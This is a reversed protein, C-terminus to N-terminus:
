HGYIKGAFFVELLGAIVQAARKGVPQALLDGAGDDLVVRLQHFKVAHVQLVVAVQAGLARALFHLLRESKHNTYANRATHETGYLPERKVLDRPIVAIAAHAQGRPLRHLQVAYDFRVQLWSQLRDIRRQQGRDGGAPVHVAIDHAIRIWVLRVSMGDRDLKRTLDGLMELRARRGVAFDPEIAFANSAALLFDDLRDVALGIHRPLELGDDRQWRGIVDVYERVVQAEDGDQIRLILDRTPIDGDTAAHAHGMALGVGIGADRVQEPEAPGLVREGNGLGDDRHLAIPAVPDLALM